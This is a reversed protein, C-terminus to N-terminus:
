AVGMQALAAAWDVYTHKATLRGDSVTIVDLADIEMRGGPEATGSGTEFPMALTGSMRWRVVWGWDEIWSEQEVFELDPFQALFGAFADRVADRGRVAEAAAHLHFIGDDAHFAAIADPDHSAWADGYDAFLQGNTFRPEAAVPTHLQDNPTTASADTM